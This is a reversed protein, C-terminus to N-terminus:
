DIIITRLLKVVGCVNNVILQARMRKKICAVDTIAYLAVTKNSDLNIARFVTTEAGEGIKNHIEYPGIILRGNKFSLQM